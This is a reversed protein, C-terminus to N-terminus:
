LRLSMKQEVPITGIFATSHTPIATFGLPRCRQSDLQFADCRLRSWESGGEGFWWRGVCVCWIFVIINFPLESYRVLRNQENFKLKPYLQSLVYLFVTVNINAILYTRVM